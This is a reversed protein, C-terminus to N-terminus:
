FMVGPNLTGAPDFAAKIRLNLALVDPGLQEPLMHRKMRGVGHEGTITGGCAIAARLLADFAAYANACMVPDSADYIVAPHANGDGAHAALPIEVKHEVAIRAINELLEPLRDIPVAIDEPLLSGRAAIASGATRRVEVFQEGEQPDDTAFAEKAGAALCLETMLAVEQSRVDGPSDSQGLLLVAADRDLGMAQHDEVANIIVQNMMELMSPRMRGMIAVVADGASRLTPFTAVMTSAPPPMPVLRLHVRTVVGLTGESGVFLKVLPLGAVDKFTRGGLKVLTGDALVVELGLVYDVTVGYKVCCLGGANTAVNGGISSMRFSAPDPPYWLGHAAAATKVDVNLAGPEVTAIGCVPDVEIAAMRELSLVVCGDIATAGGSLGTGTGRPVVPVRHESAWRLCAQVQQSTEARVVALPHGAVPYTTYDRRYKEMLDPDTIAVGVPFLAVLGALKTSTM